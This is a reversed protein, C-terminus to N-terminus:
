PPNGIKLGTELRLSPLCSHMLWSAGAHADPDFTFHDPDIINLGATSRTSSAMLAVTPLAAMAAPPPVPSAAATPPAAAARTPTLDNPQLNVRHRCLTRGCSRLPNAMSAETLSGCPLGVMKACTTPRERSTCTRQLYVMKAFAAACQKVFFNGLSIGLTRVPFHDPALGVSPIIM